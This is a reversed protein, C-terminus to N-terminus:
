LDYTILWEHRGGPKFNTQLGWANEQVRIYPEQMASVSSVGASLLSLSCRRPRAARTKLQAACACKALLPLGHQGARTVAHVVLRWEGRIGVWTATPGEESIADRVLGQGRWVLQWALNPSAACGVRPASAWGGVWRPLSAASRSSPETAPRSGCTRGRRSGLGRTASGPMRRAAGSCCAALWCSAPQYQEPWCRAPTCRKTAQGGEAATGGKRGFSCNALLPAQLSARCRHIPNASCQAVAGCVPILGSRGALLCSFCGPWLRRLRRLLRLRRLAGGGFVPLLLPRRGGEGLARQLRLKRGARAALLQTPQHPQAAGRDTPEGGGEEQRQPLSPPPGSACPLTLPVTRQPLPSPNSPLIQSPNHSPVPGELGHQVLAAALWGAPLSCLTHRRLAHSQRGLGTGCGGWYNLTLHQKDLSGVSKGAYPCRLCCRAGVNGFLGKEFSRWCVWPLPGGALPEGALWGALWGAWWRVTGSVSCSTRARRPRRPASAWGCGRTQSTCTLRKSPLCSGWASSSCAFVCVVCVALEGCRRSGPSKAAGAAGAQRQRRRRKALMCDTIVQFGMLLFLPTLCLRATVSAM